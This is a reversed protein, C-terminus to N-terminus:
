VGFLKYDGILYADRWEIFNGQADVKWRLRYDLM